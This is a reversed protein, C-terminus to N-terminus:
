QKSSTRLTVLQRLKEAENDGGKINIIAQCDSGCSSYNKLAFNAQSRIHYADVNTPDATIVASSSEISKEFEGLKYLIEARILLHDTNNADLSNAKTIYSLALKPNNENLFARASHAYATGLTPDGAAQRLSKVVVNNENTSEFLTIAEKFSKAANLYDKRNEYALGLYTYKTGSKYEKLSENLHEIAEDPRNIKLAQKGLIYEHVATRGKEDRQWVVLIMSVLMVPLSLMFLLVAIKLRHETM